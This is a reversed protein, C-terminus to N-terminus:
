DEWPEGIAKPPRSRGMVGAVAILTIVYPFLSALESPVEISTLNQSQYQLADALGFLLCALAALGPRWRGMIVAALAIYGRGASAGSTFGEHDLALWAGGLGALAGALLVALARVRTVSVGLAFAADPHEGVARMRLGFATRHVLLIVGLVVVCLVYFFPNAFVGDLGPTQPSNATSGFIAGLLFRTLGFAMLNLAIGAVIQNARFRVVVLAHLTAFLLGGAMGCVIGLVVGGVHAGLCATFAGILLKGELALNVVGSRESVVGGLAAMVLPVTLSLVLAVFTVLESM